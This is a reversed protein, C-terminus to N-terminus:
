MKYSSPPLCHLWTDREAAAGGTLGAPKRERLVCVCVGRWRLGLNSGTFYLSDPKGSDLM